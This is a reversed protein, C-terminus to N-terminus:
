DNRNGPGYGKGSCTGNECDLHAACDMKTVCRQGVSCKQCEGGCDVDSENGNQVGDSCSICGSATCHPHEGSCDQDSVCAVCTGAGNCVVGGAEACPTHAPAVASGCVGLVCTRFACVGDTGPCTTPDLCGGSGSSSSATSAASSSASASGSTATSATTASASTAGGSGGGGGDGGAPTWGTGILQACGGAIVTALLPVIPSWRM